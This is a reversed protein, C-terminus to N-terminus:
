LFCVQQLAQETLFHCVWGQELLLGRPPPPTLSRPGPTLDTALGPVSGVLIQRGGHRFFVPVNPLFRTNNHKMRVGQQTSPGGWATGAQATLLAPWPKIGM